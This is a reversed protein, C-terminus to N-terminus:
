YIIYHKWSKAQFHKKYIYSLPLVTRNFFINTKGTKRLAQFKSAIIGWNRVLNHIIHWSSTLCCVWHRFQKAKQFRRLYNIYQLIQKPVSRFTLVLKADHRLYVWIARKWNKSLCTHILSLKLSFRQFIHLHIILYIYLTFILQSYHKYQKIEAERTDGPSKIVELM